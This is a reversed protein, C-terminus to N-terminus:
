ILGFEKLLKEAQDMGYVVRANCGLEKLRALVYKQAASVRGESRKLELFLIAGGPCIVIRDPVGVLGPSAWKFYGWGAEMFHKKLYADVKSEKKGDRIRRIQPYERLVNNLDKLYDDSTRKAM